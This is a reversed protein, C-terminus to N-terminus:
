AVAPMRTATPQRTKLKTNLVLFYTGTLSSIVQNNQSEQKMNLKRPQNAECTGIQVIYNDSSSNEQVRRCVKEEIRLDGTVCQDYEAIYTTVNM